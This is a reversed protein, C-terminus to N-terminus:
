GVIRTHPGDKTKAVIATSSAEAANESSSEIWITINASIPPSPVTAPGNSPVRTTSGAASGDRPQSPAGPLPVCPM